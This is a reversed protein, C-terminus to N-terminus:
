QEALVDLSYPENVVSTWGYNFPGVFEEYKKALEDTVLSQDLGGSESFLFETKRAYGVSELLNLSFKVTYPLLTPLDYTSAKEVSISYDTCVCPINQYLIGHNLYVVPPPSTSGKGKSLVGSRVINTYFVIQDIVKLVYAINEFFERTALGALIPSVIADPSEAILGANLKSISENITEANYLSRLLNTYNFINSSIGKKINELLGLQFPIPLERIQGIQTNLLQDLITNASSKVEPNNFYKQYLQKSYPISNENVNTKYFSTFKNKTDDQPVNPNTLENFSYSEQLLHLLNVEFDLTFKRSEAGIYEFDFETDALISYQSYNAKRSENISINEFFPFRVIYPADEGLSYYIYKLYSRQPLQRDITFRSM